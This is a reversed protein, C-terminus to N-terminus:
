SVAPKVEEMLTHSYKVFCLGTIRDSSVHCALCTVISPHPHRMLLEWVREEALVSEAISNPQPGKCVRDYSILRLKKVFCDEPLPDPARSLESSYRPSYAWVPIHVIDRLDEPNITAPSPYRPKLVAHYLNCEARYVLFTGAFQFLSDSEEFIENM